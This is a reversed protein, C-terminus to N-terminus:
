NYRKPIKQIDDISDNYFPVLIVKEISELGKPILYNLNYKHFLPRTEKNVM